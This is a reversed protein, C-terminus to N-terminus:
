RSFDRSARHRPEYRSVAEWTLWEETKFGMWKSWPNRWTKRPKCSLGVRSNDVEHAPQLSSQSQLALGHCAVQRARHSRWVRTIKRACLFSVNASSFPRRSNFLRVHSPKRRFPRAQGTLKWAPRPHLSIHLAEYSPLYLLSTPLAVTHVADTGANHEKPSIVARRDDGFGFALLLQRAESSVMLTWGSIYFPKISFVGIDQCCHEEAEVTVVSIQNELRSKERKNEKKPRGTTQDINQLRHTQAAFQNCLSELTKPVFSFRGNVLEKTM